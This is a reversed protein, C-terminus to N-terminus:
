TQQASSGTISLTQGSPSDKQYESLYRFCMLNSDGVVEDILGLWYADWPTLYNEEGEQLAHCLAIFFSWVPLFHPRAKELLADRRKTDDAIGDLEAQEESTLSFRGWRDCLKRFQDSGTSFVYEKLLLFDDNLRSLGGGSFNWGSDKKHESVEFDIIKKIIAAETQALSSKSTAGAKKSMAPVLASNILAQYRGHREKARQVLQKAHDSLNEAIVYVFCDLDSMSPGALKTRVEEFKSKVTVYRFMFRWETKRALAMASQENSLKLSETLASGYEVTVPVVLSERVGHYFITSGPYAIAYDGSSLLDAAASAARNVVVTIIRCAAAADQNSATLLRLISDASDVNGGRSDIYVTIPDRSVSQYTLISPTLREVM